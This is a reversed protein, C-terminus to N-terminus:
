FNSQNFLFLSLIDATKRLEKLPTKENEQHAQAPDGPGFNVAPIGHANLRAIDTWAQKTSSQLNHEEILKTLLPNNELVQSAPAIDDIIVKDFESLFDFLFAKAANPNKSPAFRYNLNAVCQSPIVNKLNGANIKTISMTEIFKLGKIVESKFPYNVIKGLTKIAKHISNEGEWPRASHASKGNTILSANIVGLCGNQISGLTPELVLALAAQKLEPIKLLANKLGSKEYPGEEADYFIFQLNYNCKAYELNRATNLMLALGAKMDSAGCGHIFEDDKYPPKDQQNNVTDTHGYLAITPLKDSQKFSYVLTKKSKKLTLKKINRCFSGIFTTLEDEYGTPSNINLIDLLIKEISSNSNM